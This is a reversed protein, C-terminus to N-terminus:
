TNKEKLKAEWYRALKVGDSDCMSLDELTLGVWERRQPATYLKTGAPYYGEAIQVIRTSLGANGGTMNLRVEAFPEQEPQESDRRQPATYLPTGLPLDKFMMVTKVEPAQTWPTAQGNYSAAVFPRSTDLAVVAVPEQKPQSLPCEADTGGCDDCYPKALRERLADIVALRKDYDFDSLAALAQQMLERDTM